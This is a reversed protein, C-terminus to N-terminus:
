GPCVHESANIKAPVLFMRQRWYQVAPLRLLDLTPLSFVILIRVLETGLYLTFVHAFGWSVVYNMGDHKLKKKPTKHYTNSRLRHGGQISLSQDCKRGWYQNYSFVKVLLLVVATFVPTFAGARRASKEHVLPTPRFFLSQAKQSFRPM